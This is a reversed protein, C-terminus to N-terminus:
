KGQFEPDRKEKFARIGEQYDSSDYVERRLSQIREYAEPNLPSASSLVRLEEKLICQVLPSTRKIQQALNMTATELQDRTAIRNVVGCEALRQATVPQAGFLMEKLLHIDLVKIFNLMGYIDYPVGLKAPTIAFTSDEAAVILDCCMVLECAGGWVSGEIMAIIPVPYKEIARILQRLPDNYTLPDRGNTPLETVDHGASFVKVGKEARLVVVRVSRSKMHELELQIEDILAKSLPNVKGNKLTITGVQEAITSLITGM